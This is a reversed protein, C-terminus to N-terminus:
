VYDPALDQVPDRDIDLHEVTIEENPNIQRLLNAAREAIFVSRHRGSHCGVAITALEVHYGVSAVAAAFMQVDVLNSLYDEVEKALGTLHGLTTKEAPDEQLCRADFVVDAGIPKDRKFRYGFTVIKM